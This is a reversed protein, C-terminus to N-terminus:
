AGTVVHFNAVLGIEEDVGIKAAVVAEVGARANKKGALRRRGVKALAIIRECRMVQVIRAVQPQREVYPVDIRLHKHSARVFGFPQERLLFFESSKDDAVRVAPGGPPSIKKMMKGPLRFNSGAAAVEVV